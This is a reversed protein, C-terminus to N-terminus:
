DKGHMDEWTVACGRYRRGNVSVEATHRFRRDSMGDSCPAPRITVLINDGTEPNLSAFIRATDSEMPPHYPFHQMDTDDLTRFEILDEAASVQATWYPETGLAWCDYPICTNRFNKTQLSTTETVVLFAAHGDSLEEDAWYPATYGHLRVFASQGPYPLGLTRRYLIELRHDPDIVQFREAPLDCDRFTATEARRSYLGEYPRVSKVPLLTPQLTEPFPSGTRSLAAWVAKKEAPVLQHLCGNFDTEGLRALLSDLITGHLRLLSTDCTKSFRLLAVASPEQGRLAKSLHGAYDFSQRDANHLLAQGVPVGEVFVTTRENRCATLIVM